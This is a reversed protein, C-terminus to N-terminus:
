IEDLPDVEEDVDDEDDDDDLPLVPVRLREEKITENLFPLLTPLGEGTVSSIVFYPVDEQKLRDLLRALEEERDHTVDAKTLAVVHKKTRLRESFNALESLLVSYTEEPGKESDAPDVLLLLISTREIHRLFRSGLGVGLHAGEIIGPIDAVVFSEYGGVSVVGLNPVLTTFPYDAVKPRAASIRSILTSKGANPFGVLGVDAMIKLELKLWLQDGDEGPQAFRPAKYTATAFHKNGKGGRGGNASIIEDTGITLDGIITGTERDRVITGRPVDLVLDNGNAGTMNSGRGNRGRGARYHKLTRLPLLTNLAESVRLIVSGGNGGNGGDPGGFEVYKERRFSVCGNGGKGAQVNIELEDIFM